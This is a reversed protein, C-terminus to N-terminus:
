AAPAPLAATTESLVSARSDRPTLQKELMRGLGLGQGQSLKQALSDTLLDGFVSASTGGTGEGENSLMSTMTKGLLQRVLIAEFQQAVQHRQEAPDASRLAEGALLGRDRAPATLEAIRSTADPTSANLPVVTM